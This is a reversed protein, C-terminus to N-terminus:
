GNEYLKYVSFRKDIAEIAKYLLFAASLFDFLRLSFYIGDRGGLWAWKIWMM